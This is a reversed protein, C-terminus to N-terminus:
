SPTVEIVDDGDDTPTMTVLTTVGDDDLIRDVGTSITHRRKNVLAAKCLHVEAGIDGATAVIEVRFPSILAGAALLTVTVGRAGGSFAADPVDFRYWGPCAAADIEIFGGDVHAADPSALPATAIAVSAARSRIFRAVIDGYTLGTIPQGTLADVAFVEATVDVSDYMITAM